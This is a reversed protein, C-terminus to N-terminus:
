AGGTSLQRLLTATAADRFRVGAFAARVRAYGAVQAARTESDADLLPALSSALAHADGFSPVHEDIVRTGDIWEHVLNPLTFTRSSVIHRGIQWKWPAVEFVAAQPTGRALVQLTVTGSVALVADAWQIVDDTRGPVVATIRGGHGTADEFRAVDEATRLGVVVQAPRPRNSTAVDIADLMVRANRQIEHPRSGPLLAVRPGDVEPLGAPDNAPEDDFLPHGVFTCDVGREGFWDPEFPLLGLVHDTLRRLKKIRGEGWAWLQPAVLHVVRAKPHAERVAACVSWNAAPSDVPVLADVRHTALWAKLRKLRARHARIESLADAGMVAKETTTELLEAGAAQMKPGGLAVVRLSGDAALLSEILTAALEDGSPEFATFLITKSM